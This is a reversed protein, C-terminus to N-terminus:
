KPLTYFIKLKIGNKDFVSRNMNTLDSPMLVIRKVSLNGAELIQAFLTAGGNYIFTQDDIPALLLDTAQRIYAVDDLIATTGPNNSFLGPTYVNKYTGNPISDSGVIDFNEEIFFFRLDLANELQEGNAVSELDIDLRNIQIQPLSDFLNNLPSFDIVPYIGSASQLYVNSLDADFSEFNSKIASGIVSGSRDVNLQNYRGANPAGFTFEAALSDILVSDIIGNDIDLTLHSIHYHLIIKTGGTPNFGLIAENNQDGVFALGKLENRLENSVSEDNQLIDFLMSSFDDSLAVQLTDIVGESLTLTSLDLNFGGDLANADYTTEFDALYFPSNFLTDQLQHLSFMFQNLLTGSHVYNLELDLFASDLIYTTTDHRAVIATLISLQSLAVAETTGFIPDANKGVLLRRDEDTRLSDIFINTAPLNLETYHVGVRLGDPDLEIGIESSNQCSFMSLTAVALLVLLIRDLLNM